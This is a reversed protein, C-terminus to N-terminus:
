DEIKSADTGSEFETDIPLAIAAICAELLQDRSMNSAVVDPLSNLIHTFIPSDLEDVSNLARRLEREIELDVEAQLQREKLDADIRASRADHEAKQGDYKAKTGAYWETRVKAVNLAITVIPTMIVTGVLIIILPSAMSISKVRLVEDDQNYSRAAYRELRRITESIAVVSEYEPDLPFRFGVWHEAAQPATLLGLRADFTLKVLGTEPDFGTIEALREIGSTSLRLVAPMGVKVETEGPDEIHLSASAIGLRDVTATIRGSGFILEGPVAAQAVERYRALMDETWTNDGAIALDLRNQTLYTEYGHRKLKRYHILMRPRVERMGRNRLYENIDTLEVQGNHRLFFSYGEAGDIPRAVPQKEADNSAM